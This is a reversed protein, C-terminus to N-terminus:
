RNDRQLRRIHADLKYRWELCTRDDPGPSMEPRCNFWQRLALLDNLLGIDEIRQAVTKRGIREFEGGDQPIALLHDAFSREGM